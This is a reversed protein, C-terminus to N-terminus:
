IELEFKAETILAYAQRRKPLHRSRLKATMRDHAVPKKTKKLWEMCRWFIIKLYAVAEEKGSNGVYL